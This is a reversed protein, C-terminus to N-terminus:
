VPPTFCCHMVANPVEGVVSVEITAWREAALAISVDLRTVGAATPVVRPADVEWGFTWGLPAVPLALDRPWVGLLAHQRAAYRTADDDDDDVTTTM